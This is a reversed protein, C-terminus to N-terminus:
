VTTAPASQGRLRLWNLVLIVALLAAGAAEVGIDPWFVAVVGPVILVRQWLPMPAFLFGELAAAFATLALIAIAGNWLM